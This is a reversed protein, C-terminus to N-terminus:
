KDYENDWMERYINVYDVTAEPNINYYYRCLKKYLVLMEADFCFDLMGDLTHEIQNQDNHTSIISDVVAGYQWLAQKALQNMEIAIKEIEKIM